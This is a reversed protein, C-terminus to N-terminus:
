DAWYTEYKMRKESLGNVRCCVWAGASLKEYDAIKRPM